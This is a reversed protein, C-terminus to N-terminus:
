QHCATDRVYLNRANYKRLLPQKLSNLTKLHCVARIWIGPCYMAGIGLDVTAEYVSLLKWAGVHKCLKVVQRKSCFM